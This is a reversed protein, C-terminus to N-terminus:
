LKFYGSWGSILGTSEQYFSIMALYPRKINSWSFYKWDGPKLRLLNSDRYETDM